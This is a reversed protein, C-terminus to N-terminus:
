FEFVKLQGADGIPDGHGGRRFDDDDPDVYRLSLGHGPPPESSETAGSHASAIGAGFGTLSAALLAGALVRSTTKGM